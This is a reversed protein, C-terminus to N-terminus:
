VHCDPPEADEGAELRALWADVEEAAAHLGTAQYEAWAALADNRFQERIEKKMKVTRQFSDSSRAASQHTESREVWGVGM